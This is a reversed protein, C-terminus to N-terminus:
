RRRSFKSITEAAAALTKGIDADRHAASVFWAEYQSPPLYVGRALMSRHFAAFRRVDSHKADEYRAVDRDTFFLTMMSGVRNLRFPLGRAQFLGALGRALCGARRNLIAYPPKARLRRLTALGAAVALPNGSLTGAQYVPGEPSLHRMIRRPGGFAALPMGGGVIKGLCTLDPEIGFMEQAGGLGVRFGTVVEDFILLAGCRRTCERLAELFGAKPPIVGANAAVPEVVVAAVTQGHHKLYSSISVIDNYPIVATLKALAQPVGPSSPHGFTTAGSGASVLFSDAHGHYGGSFKVIRERRTHARALRVASMLAETGSSVMRVQEISPVSACILEALEVERATAAGFTTGDRATKCIAAIVSPEAHGLILPGWSGLYDIYKKGDADFVHAGRGRAIFPPCGGVARFARVPSNVGGPIARRAKSWLRRGRNM